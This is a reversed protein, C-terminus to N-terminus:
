FLRSSFASLGVYYNGVNSLFLACYDLFKQVEDMGIETAM